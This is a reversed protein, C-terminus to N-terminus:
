AGWYDEPNAVRLGRSELEALLRATRQALSLARAGGTEGTGGTGGTGGTRGSPVSVIDGPSLEQPGHAFGLRGDPRVTVRSLVVAAIGCDAAARLTTTDYAGHPPRLFRPRAGFRSRLKRQQGCIEARQGAYPLGRLAPHDLTNNQLSVGVARLRAFHAYGPGAVSDTLFLAVPLRRERVLDILGPDAAAGDDYTLFVVKDRTPVRDIVPPLHGEAPVAVGEEGASRGAGPGAGSRAGSGAGAGAGPGSEAGGGAAGSAGSGGDEGKGHQASGGPPETPTTGCAAVTTLLAAGAALLRLTTAPGRRM